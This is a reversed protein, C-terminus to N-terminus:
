NHNIFIDSIIVDIEKIQHEMYLLLSELTKFTDILIIEYEESEVNSLMIEIKLRDISDDELLVVNIKKM